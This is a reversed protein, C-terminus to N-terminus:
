TKKHRRRSFGLRKGVDEHAMVRGRAFAREGEDVLLKVELAQLRERDAKWQDFTEKDLVVLDTKGRRMVELPEKTKKLYEAWKAVRHEFESIAISTM